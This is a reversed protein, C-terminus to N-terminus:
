FDYSAAFCEMESSGKIYRKKSVLRTSSTGILKKKMHDVSAEVCRIAVRVVQPHDVWLEKWFCAEVEAASDIIDHIDKDSPIDSLQTLVCAVFELRESACRDTQVFLGRSAVLPSHPSLEQICPTAARYFLYTSVGFTVLHTGFSCPGPNRHQALWEARRGKPIVDSGLRFSPLLVHLLLSYSELLVNEMAHTFGIYSRAEASQLTSSIRSLDDTVDDALLLCLLTHIEKCCIDESGRKNNPTYPVVEEATFFGQLATKYIVWITEDAIPFLVFRRTTPLLLTDSREPSTM